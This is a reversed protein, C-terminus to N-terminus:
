GTSKKRTPARKLADRKQEAIGFSLELSVKIGERLALSRTDKHENVNESPRRQQVGRKALWGRKQGYWAWFSALARAACVSPL